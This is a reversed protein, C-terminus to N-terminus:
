KNRCLNLVKVSETSRHGAVGSRSRICPIGLFTSIRAFERFGAKKIGRLSAENEASAYIVIRESRFNNAILKLLCPYYAKGRYHPLTVCDVIWLVSSKASVKRNIEGVYVESAKIIWAFSVYEGDRLCFLRYGKKFREYVYQKLDYPAYKTERYYRVYDEFGM